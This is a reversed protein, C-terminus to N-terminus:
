LVVYKLSLGDLYGSSSFFLRREIDFYRYFELKAFHANDYAPDNSNLRDRTRRNRNDYSGVGRLREENM